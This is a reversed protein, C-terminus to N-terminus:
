SIYKFYKNEGGWLKIEEGEKKKKKKKEKASNM